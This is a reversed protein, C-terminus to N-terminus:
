ALTRDVVCRVRGLGSQHPTCRRALVPTIRPDRLVLRHPNSAYTRHGYLRGPRRRPRRVGGRVPPIANILPLVEIMDHRNAGTLIAALPVGGGDALVHHKMGPKRRDVPSRGTQEGAGAARVAAADIVARAWDICNADRLRAM